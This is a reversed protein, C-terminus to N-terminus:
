YNGYPNTCLTTNNYFVYKGILFFSQNALVVDNKTFCEQVLAPLSVVVVLRSGFYLSFICGYTRSLTSFPQHIPQKLHHLNGIIPFAPPSPPLNKFRNHQLQLLLKIIIIIFSLTLLSFYFFPAM